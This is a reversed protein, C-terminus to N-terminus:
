ADPEERSVPLEVRIVTGKGKRSRINITGGLSAARERMGLLGMCRKAAGSPLGGDTQDFGTGDDRITLIVKPHSYILWVHAHKANAHKIINNLSEQFIRYLVIEIEPDLRKKLGRTQFVIQLEPRQKTYDHVYWNLTPVLGLDDLMEPRLEHTINRIANGLQRILNILEGCKKKQNEFKEPMSNHLTEIGLHCATLAQGCEDHLDRAIRKREQETTEMLLRSLDRIEEEARNRETVDFGMELVMPSGDIDTFPYDYIHYTRGDPADYWESEQPSKTNFVRVTWCDDCPNKSNKMVEYCLKGKPDGFHERFYRNAFHISYDPAQLFVFAPLEDLVSFLRKREAELDEEARRREVIEARLAENAKVLEATREQVRIELEDRAKQLEEEAWKRQMALAFLSALREVLRLDQETYRRDSNAVAVQGVLTEGIVAPASLFRHIPIHGKPPGSYRPDESPINTLLPKRNELVWGWLGAFKKFVIDKDEVRCVDWIDETMTPSILYGTEPDIYGVYGFVSGTLRKAHELVLSFIEKMSVTTSILARSLEAIASNVGAEWSLKEEAQKRETINIAYHLYVDNEIPVWWTDWLRGFAEVAPNNQTKNQEFLEDALCFTCKTGGPPINGKHENMYQKDHDPIYESQGFDRWCYGGLRAGVERAIRNAALVIRDRRILMAPHPLSDLLLENLRLSERLMEEARKREATKKELEKVRQELEECTLHDEMM